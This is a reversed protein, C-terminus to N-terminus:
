LKFAHMVYDCYDTALLLRLSHAPHALTHLIPAGMKM